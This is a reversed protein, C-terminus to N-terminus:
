IFLYYCFFDGNSLKEFCLFQGTQQFQRELYGPAFKQMNLKWLATYYKGCDPYGRRFFKEPVVAANLDLSTEKSLM